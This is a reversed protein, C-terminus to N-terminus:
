LSARVAAVESSRVNSLKKAIERDTCGPNRGMGALIRTVQEAPNETV